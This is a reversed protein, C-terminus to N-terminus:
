VKKDRKNVVESDATEHQLRMSSIKIQGPRSTHKTYRAAEYDPSDTPSFTSIGSPHLKGGHRGFLMSIHHHNTKALIITVIIDYPM